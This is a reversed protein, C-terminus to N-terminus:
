LVILWGRQVVFKNLIYVAINDMFIKRKGLGQGNWVRVVPKFLYM